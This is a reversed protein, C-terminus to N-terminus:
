DPLGIVKRYEASVAPLAVGFKLYFTRDLRYEPVKSWAYGAGLRMYTSGFTLELGYSYIEQRKINTLWAADIFGQVAVNEVPIILLGFPTRKFLYLTLENSTWWLEKGGIDRQVGRVTRTYSFDRPFDYQYFRDIGLIQFPIDDGSNKLFHIRGRWGLNPFVLDTAAELGMDMISFTYHSSLSQHVYAYASLSKQAILPYLQTPLHYGLRLGIRGLVYQAPPESITNEMPRLHEWTVALSPTCVYRTNGKLFINRSVDMTLLDRNLRFWTDSTTNFIVPGHYYISSVLFNSLIFQHTLIILSQDFASPYVLFMAMLQQRQLAEFWVSIGYIGFKNDSDYAPFGFSLGHLLPFYQTSKKERSTPFRVSDSETLLSPSPIKRTWRAYSKHAASSSRVSDRTSLSDINIAHYDLHNNIQLSSLLLSRTKAHYGEAWYDYQDNLLLDYKQKLLNYQCLVTKDAIYRNFYFLSDNIVVPRRDDTSDNTMATLINNHFRFLDRNGNAQQAELLYDDNSLLAIRGLPMACTLIDHVQVPDQQLDILKLISNQPRIEVLILHENSAFVAQRAHINCVVRKKKGTHRDYIYWDFGLTLLNNRADFHYRGFAIRNQDPSLVLQTHRDNFLKEIIQFKGKKIRAVVATRYLHNQNLRSSILYTSDEALPIVQDTQYGCDPLKTNWRRQPYDAYKDGYFLILQRLFHKFVTSLSEHYTNRFAADFDYIFSRSKYSMLKIFSSDGYQEALYRTFAHASAYLLSGDETSYLDNLSLKGEFLANKLFLDGRYANWSESFYQALGEWLWRPVTLYAVTGFLNATRRLKRFTVLHVLEHNLVQTYWTQNGTWSSLYDSSLAYVVVTNEIAFGNSIDLVATVIIRAPDELYSQLSVGSLKCIAPISNDAIKLLSDAIPELGTQYEVRAYKGTVQYWETAFLFPTILLLFLFSILLRTKM